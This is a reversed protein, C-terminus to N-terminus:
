PYGIIEVKWWNRLYLLTCPFLDLVRYFFISSSDTRFEWFSPIGLGGFVSYVWFLVSRVVVEVEVVFPAM